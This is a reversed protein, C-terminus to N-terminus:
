WHFCRLRECSSPFRKRRVWNGAYVWEEGARPVDEARPESAGGLRPGAVDISTDSQDQSRPTINGSTCQSHDGPHLMTPEGTGQASPRSWLSGRRKVNSAVRQIRLSFSRHVKPRPAQPRPTDDQPTLSRPSTTNFLAPDTHSTLGTACPPAPQMDTVHKCFQAM